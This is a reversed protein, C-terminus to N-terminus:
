ADQAAVTIRIQGEPAASEQWGNRETRDWSRGAVEVQTVDLGKANAV